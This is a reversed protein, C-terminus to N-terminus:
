DFMINDKYFKTSLFGYNFVIELLLNKEICITFLLVRLLFLICEVLTCDFDM